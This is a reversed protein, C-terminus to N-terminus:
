DQKALIDLYLHRLTQTVRGPRGDGIAQGDIAVVPTVLSTASTFFAEEAAFAEDLSFPREEFTVTGSAALRMVAARTIGPLIATSLPRTVLTPGSKVIFASSSAGETVFGDELMWAESAGAEHAAQKALVQALLAVSKIDRRAWRLDPVTAVSAGNLAVQLEQIPKSQTFMVVTPKIDTPYLFDRESVGRTVQIYVLGETLGNLAILETQIAIWVETPFPDSISLAALSLALRNLHAENDILAGNIVATVEYVGDAFLFGRDMVSIRADEASLFAGDIYIIREM